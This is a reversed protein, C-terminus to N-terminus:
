DNKDIKNNSLQVLLYKWPIGGFIISILKAYRRNLEFTYILELSLYGQKM